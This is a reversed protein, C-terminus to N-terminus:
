QQSVCPCFSQFYETWQRLCYNVELVKNEFWLLRPLEPYHRAVSRAIWTQNGASAFIKGRVDQTCVPEPAWGAEQVIPVPAKERPYLVAPAHSQGSAGM